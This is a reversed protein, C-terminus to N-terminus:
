ADKPLVLVKPIATQPVDKELGAMDQRTDV